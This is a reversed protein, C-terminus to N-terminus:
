VALLIVVSPPVEAVVPMPSSGAVVAMQVAAPLSPPPGAVPWGALALGVEM